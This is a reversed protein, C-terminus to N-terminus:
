SEPEFQQGVTQKSAEFSRPWVDAIAEASWGTGDAFEVVTEVPHTWLALRDGGIGIVRKVLHGGTPYLGIESLGKQVPTLKPAGEAGLWRGGPDDFVVVDGRHVDGAWYSYISGPNIHAWRDVEWSMLERRIQYGNVPEFLSVAGLVLLRTETAAM